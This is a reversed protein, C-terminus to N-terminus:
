NKEFISTPIHFLPFLVAAAAHPPDSVPTYTCSFRTKLFYWHSYSYHFFYFLDTGLQAVHPPDSAPTHSSRKLFTLPFIFLPPFLVAAPQAAHPLDSAPTYAHTHTHTHTHMFIQNKLSVQFHSTHPMFKIVFVFFNTNLFIMNFSFHKHLFLPFLDHTRARAHTHTHTHTHSPSLIFLHLRQWKIRHYVHDTWVVTHTPTGHFYLMSTFSAITSPSFICPFDSAPPSYYCMMVLLPSIYFIIFQHQPRSQHLSWFDNWARTEFQNKIERGGEPGVKCQCWASGSMKGCHLALAM